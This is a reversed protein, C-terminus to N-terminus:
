TTRAGANPNNRQANEDQAQPSNTVNLTPVGEPIIVTQTQPNSAKAFTYSRIDYSEIDTVSITQTSTLYISSGDRNIDEVTVPTDLEPTTFKKQSNTIITIPDGTASDKNSSWTNISKLQSVSSGFRISQGWRGQIITDGEFPRLSKIDNRELFTYGQPIKFFNFDSTPSSTTSLKDQIFNKYEVMNPFVNSHVSNWVSFPPFYWLDQNQTGDNLDASPGPMILVIEGINPYQRLFGFIPYAPKGTDSLGSIGSKGSYLPEYYIKGLDRESKYDEDVYTDTNKAGLIIRKVRAIIYQQGGLKGKSGDFPDFM